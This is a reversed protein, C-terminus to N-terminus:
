LAPQGSKLTDKDTRQDTRWDTRLSNEFVKSLSTKHSWHTSRLVTKSGLGPGFFVRNPGFFNWVFGFNSWFLFNQCYEPAILNGRLAIVSHAKTQVPYESYFAYQYKSTWILYKRGVPGCEGIFILCMFLFHYFCESDSSCALGEVTFFITVLFFCM